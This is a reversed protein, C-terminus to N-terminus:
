LIGTLWDCIRKLLPDIKKHIEDVLRYWAVRFEDM